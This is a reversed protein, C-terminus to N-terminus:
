KATSNWLRAAANEVAWSFRRELPSPSSRPPNPYPYSICSCTTGQQTVSFSGGALNNAFRGLDLAFENADFGTIGGGATAHKQM